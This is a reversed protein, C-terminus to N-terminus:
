STVEASMKAATRSLGDAYEELDDATMESRELAERITQLCSKPTGSGEFMGDTEGAYYAMFREAERLASTLVPAYITKARSM